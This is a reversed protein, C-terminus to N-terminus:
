LFFDLCPLSYRPPNQLLGYHISFWQATCAIIQAETMGLYPAAPDRAAATASAGLSVIVAAFALRVLRWTLSCM